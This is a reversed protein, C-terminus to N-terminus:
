ESRNTSTLLNYSNITKLHRWFVDDNWNLSCKITKSWCLHDNQIVDLSSTALIALSKTNGIFFNCADSKRWWLLTGLHNLRRNRLLGSVRHLLDDPLDRHDLTLGLFPNNFNWLHLSDLSNNLDWLHLNLLNHLLDSNRQIENNSGRLWELRQIQCM